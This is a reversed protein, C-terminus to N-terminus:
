NMFDVRGDNKNVIVIVPGDMLTNEQSYIDFIINWENPYRDITTADGFQYKYGRLDQNSIFKEAILIAQAKSVSM